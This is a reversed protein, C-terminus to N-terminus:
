GRLYKLVGLNHKREIRDLVKNVTYIIALTLTYVVALKLYWIEPLKLIEYASLVLIHWLYLWLSHSSVYRILASDYLKLPHKESLLLLFFSIAVGFSLYYLRPPYKVIDVLQFSGTTIQYYIGLGIFVALSCFAIGYRTKSKMQRYHYGLCALLGYPIIYYVTTDLFKNDVGLGLYYVVEYIVYLSLMTITSTVMSKMKDFVPILLAVYLYVLIVWVYYMGYQTLCFSYIYYRIPQLQGTVCFLATFFLLQFLWTPFVLRKFRSLCYRGALALGAGSYKKYSREGLMASVIVMLPVDFSRIMRLWDPAGVHAIIIATVGIFKLFDIYGIRKVENSKTQEM